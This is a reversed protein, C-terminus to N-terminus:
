NFMNRKFRSAKLLTPQDSPLDVPICAYITGDSLPDNEQKLQEMMEAVAERCEKLTGTGAPITMDDSPHITMARVQTDDPLEEAKAVNSCAAALLAACLVRLM